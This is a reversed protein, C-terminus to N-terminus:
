AIADSADGAASFACIAPAGKHAHGLGVRIPSRGSRDGIPKPEVGADENAKAM